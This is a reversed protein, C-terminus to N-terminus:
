QHKHEMRDQVESVYLCVTELEDESNICEWDGGTSWVPRDCFETWQERLGRTCNAKLQDRVIKGSYGAATVVAHVHNSRPNVTWLRWGRHDCHRHCEEEVVARHALSLLLIDYNLRERRWQALRPQPTQGGKRRRRWGREDGQLYTGYVTWTIFFAIPDDSNM